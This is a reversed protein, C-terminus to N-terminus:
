LNNIADCSNLYVTCFCCSQESKRCPTNTVNWCIIKSDNYASCKEREGSSCRKLDWCPLLALLRRIGSLNLGENKILTRIQSIRELDFHSYLRRKSKTRYPIILGMSEYMRLTPVSISLKRAAIGINFIPEKDHFEM